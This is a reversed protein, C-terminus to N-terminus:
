LLTIMTQWIATPLLARLLLQHLLLTLTPM